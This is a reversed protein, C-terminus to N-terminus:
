RNDWDYQDADFEGVRLEVRLDGSPLPTTEIVWSEVRIGNPLTEAALLKIHLMVVDRADDDYRIKETVSVGSRIADGLVDRIDRDNPHILVSFEGVIEDVYTESPLPGGGAGSPYDGPDDWEETEPRLTSKLVRM